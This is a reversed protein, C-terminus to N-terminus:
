RRPSYLALLRAKDDGSLTLTHWGPRMVSDSGASHPIGITHGLEHAVTISDDGRMYVLPGATPTRRYAHGGRQTRNAFLVVIRGPQRESELSNSGYQRADQSVSGLRFSIGLAALERNWFAVAARVKAVQAGNPSVVVIHPPSTWPAGQQARAEHGPMSLMCVLTRVTTSAGVSTPKKWM